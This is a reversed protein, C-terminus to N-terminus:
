LILQPFNEAKRENEFTSSKGGIGGKREPVVKNFCQM